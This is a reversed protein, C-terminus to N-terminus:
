KQWGWLLLGAPWLRWAGAYDATATHFGEAANVLSGTNGPFDVGAIRRM